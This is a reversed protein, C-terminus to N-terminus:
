STGLPGVSAIALGRGVKALSHFLFPYVRGRYSHAQERYRHTMWCIRWSVSRKRSCAREWLSHM